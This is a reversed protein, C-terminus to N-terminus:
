AYHGAMTSFKRGPTAVLSPMPASASMARFGRRTYALMEPKSLRPRHVILGRIVDDNLCEGPEHGDVAVGSTRRREDSLRDAIERGPEQRTLARV